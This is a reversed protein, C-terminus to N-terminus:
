RVQFVPFLEHRSTTKESVITKDLAFFVHRIQARTAHPVEFLRAYNEAPISGSAAPVRVAPKSVKLWSM